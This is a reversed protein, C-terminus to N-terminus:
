KLKLLKDFVVYLNSYINLFLLSNKDIRALRLEAM